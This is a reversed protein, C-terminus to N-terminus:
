NVLQTRAHSNCLYCQHFRLNIVGSTYPYAQYRCEGWLNNKKRIRVIRAIRPGERLVGSIDHIISILWFLSGEGILAKKKIRTM